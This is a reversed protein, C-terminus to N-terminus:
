FILGMMVRITTSKGSGNPFIFGFIEGKYVDFSVDEVGKNIGYYKNLSNSEIIKMKM